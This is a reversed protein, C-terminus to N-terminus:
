TLDSSFPFGAAGDNGHTIFFFSSGLHPIKELRLAGMAKAQYCNGGRVTSLCRGEDRVVVLSSESCGFGASFEGGRNM